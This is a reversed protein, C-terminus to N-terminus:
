GTEAGRVWRDIAGRFASVSFRGVEDVARSMDTAMARTAASRLDSDLRGSDTAEGGGVALVSERAGGESSVLVATGAAMAEVPMIGFDEEALFAFLSAAQYLAYLCADSVQGAFRVPVDVSDALARLHAEEPGTGVIVVPMALAQGLQIVLDLRKYSVLRSGGLIFDAPLGHFLAEAAPDLHDRWRPVSQIREVDVPPYVVTADRDWARRIRERVYRSNAAYEVGADTGRRDVRRLAVSGVRAVIGRGRSEVEPAWLYRAPTHVYALGRRGARVAHTALHHAFAHSSALVTDYDSLDVAAWTRPMMPLSLAKRGRLRSHALASERVPRDFHHPVENWLCMAEAAPFLDVLERFVNESGGIGDLWEHALLMRSDHTM